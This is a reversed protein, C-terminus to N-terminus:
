NTKPITRTQLAYRIILTADRPGTPEKVVSDGRRMMRRMVDYCVTMRDGSNPHGGAQKHLKDAEVDVYPMGSRRADNLIATLRNQFDWASPPM